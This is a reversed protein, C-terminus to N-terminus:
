RIIRDALGLWGHQADLRWEGRGDGLVAVLGLPALPQSYAVNLTRVLVAVTDPLIAVSGIVARESTLTRPGEGHAALYGDHRARAWRVMFEATGLAEAEELTSVGALEHFTVPEDPMMALFEEIEELFPDAPEWSQRPPLAFRGAKEDLYSRRLSEISDADTLAIAAEWEQAQFAALAAAVVAEAARVRDGIEPQESGVRSLYEAPESISDWIEM